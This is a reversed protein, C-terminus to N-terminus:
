ILVPCQEDHEVFYFSFGSSMRFTVTYKPPVPQLQLRTVWTWVRMDFKLM